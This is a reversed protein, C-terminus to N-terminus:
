ARLLVSCAPTASSLRNPSPWVKEARVVRAHSVQRTVSRNDEAVGAQETSKRAYIAAIMEDDDESRHKKIYDRARTPLRGIAMLDTVLDEEAMNFREYRAYVQWRVVGTKVKTHDWQTLRGKMKREVLALVDAVRGRGACRSSLKLSLSGFPPKLHASRHAGFRTAQSAPAPETRAPSEESRPSSAKAELLRRIVSNPTDEFAKGLQQLGEYVDDDV